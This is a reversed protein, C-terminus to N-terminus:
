YADGFETLLLDWARFRVTIGIKKLNQLYNDLNDPKNHVVSRFNNIKTILDQKWKDIVEEPKRLMRQARKQVTDDLAIIYIGEEGVVISSSIGSKLFHYILNIIDQGSPPILIGYIAPHTHFPIVNGDPYPTETDEVTNADGLWIVNQLKARSTVLSSISGAVERRMNKSFMYIHRLELILKENELLLDWM